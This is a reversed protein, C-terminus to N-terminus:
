VNMEHFLIDINRVCKKRLLLGVCLSPFDSTHVIRRAKLAHGELLRETPSGLVEM